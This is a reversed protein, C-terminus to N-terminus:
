TQKSAARPPRTATDPAFVAFGDAVDYFMAGRPSRLIRATMWLDGIAGSANITGMVIMWGAVGSWLTAAGVTALTIIVLPALGVILYSSKRMPELFTTYAFGPGIGFSPRTGLLAAAAGHIVEHVVIVAVTVVIFLMLTTFTFTAEYSSPGGRMAVVAVLAIAWLPILLTGIVTIKTINLKEHGVQRYGPLDPATTHPLDGFWPKLDKVFTHRAKSYGAPTAPTM